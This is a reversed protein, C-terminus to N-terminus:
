GFIPVNEDSNHGAILAITQEAREPPAEWFIPLKGVIASSEKLSASDVDDPLFMELHSISVVDVDHRSFSRIATATNELAALFADAMATKPGLAAIRLPHHAGFKSLFQTTPDFQEVPLVFGNLMWAEPSRVYSAQNGLAPELALGCPPFMGAYDIAQDLLARLSAAPM